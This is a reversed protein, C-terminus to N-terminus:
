LICNTVFPALYLNIISFVNRSQLSLTGTDVMCVRGHKSLVNFGLSPLWAGWFRCRM